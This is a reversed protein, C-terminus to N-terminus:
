VNLLCKINSNHNSYKHSWNELMNIVTSKIEQRQNFKSQENSDRVYIFTESLHHCGFTTGLHHCGFTMGFHHCGSTMGLRRRGCTM